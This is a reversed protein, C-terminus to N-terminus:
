PEVVVYSGDWSGFPETTVGNRTTGRYSELAPRIIIRVTGGRERTIVGKHVGATCVSSDDTYTDTGWIRWFTGDPSCEYKFSKSNEGRHVTADAMWSVEISPTPSAPTTPAISTALTRTPTPAASAGPPAPSASRAVNARAQETSIRHALPYVVLAIAGIIGLVIVVRERVSM